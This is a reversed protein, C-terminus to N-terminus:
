SCANYCSGISTNQWDSITCWYCRKFMHHQMQAINVQAIINRTIHLQKNSGLLRLVYSIFASWFILMLMLLWYTLITTLLCRFIGSSKKKTWYKQFHRHEKKSTTNVTWYKWIHPHETKSTATVKYVAINNIIFLVFFGSYLRLLM